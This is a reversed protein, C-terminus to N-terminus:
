QGHLPGGILITNAIQEKDLWSHVFTQAQAANM